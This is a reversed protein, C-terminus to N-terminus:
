YVTVSVRLLADCTTMAPKRAVDRPGSRVLDIRSDSSM